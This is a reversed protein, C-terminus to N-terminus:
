QLAKLMKQLRDITHRTGFIMQRLIHVRRQLHENYPAQALEDIARGLFHEYDHLFKLKEAIQGELRESVSPKPTM